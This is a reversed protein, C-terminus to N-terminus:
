LLTILRMIYDIGILIDIVVMVVMFCFVTVFPILLLIKLGTMLIDKFDDKM